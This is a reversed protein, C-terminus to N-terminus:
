DVKRKLGVAALGLALLAVTTPEPIPDQGGSQTFTAARFTGETLAASTIAVDGPNPEAGSYTHGATSFTGYLFKGGDAPTASKSWFIMTFTDGVDDIGGSATGKGNTAGDAALAALGDASYAQKAAIASNMSAEDAYPSAGGQLAAIVSSDVIAYNYNAISSQKDAKWNVSAAQAAIAAFVSAFVILKKM